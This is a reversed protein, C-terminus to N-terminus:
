NLDELATSTISPLSKGGNAVSKGDGLGLIAGGEDVLAISNGWSSSSGTVVVRLDGGIHCTRSGSTFEVLDGGVEHTEEGEVRARLPDVVSVDAAGAADVVLDGGSRLAM